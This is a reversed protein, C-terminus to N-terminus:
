FIAHLLVSHSVFLSSLNRPIKTLLYGLFFPCKRTFLYIVADIEFSHVAPTLVNQLREGFMAAPELTEQYKSSTLGPEINGTSYDPQRFFASFPLFCPLEVKQIIFSLLFTLSFFTVPKHLPFNKHFLPLYTSIKRM